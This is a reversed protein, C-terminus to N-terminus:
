RRNPAIRWEAGLKRGGHGTEREFRERLANRIADTLSEGTAAALERALREAGSDKISLAM